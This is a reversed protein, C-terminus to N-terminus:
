KGPSFQVIAYAEGEEDDLSVFVGCDDSVVLPHATNGLVMMRRYEVVIRLPASPLADEGLVETAAAEAFEIYRVNNVHRNTDLHHESVAIDASMRGQARDFRDTRTIRARGEELEEAFYAIEAEPVRIPHGERHDFLTWTSDAEVLTEGDPGSITVLRQCTRGSIHPVRTSVEIEEGLGPLRKVTIDWSLVFWALGDDLLAQVSRGVSECHFVACDQLYNLLAEISLHGSDDLESYRVRTSLSFM